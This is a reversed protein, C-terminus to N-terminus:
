DILTISRIDYKNGLGPTIPGEYLQNAVLEGTITQQSPNSYDLKTIVIAAFGLLELPEKGTFKNVDKTVPVYLITGNKEYDDLIKEVTDNKDTTRANIINAGTNSALSKGDSGYGIWLPNPYGDRLYDATKSPKESWDFYIWGWNGPMEKELHFEVFNYQAGEGAKVLNDFLTWQMHIPILGGMENVVGIIATADAPIIATADAPVDPDLLGFIKAFSYEVEKVTEVKITYDNLAEATAGCDYNNVAFNEAFAEVDEESNPSAYMFEQAGALAAADAANVMQRKTQYLSGGDIALAAMGMLVVVSLAVLILVGGKENRLFLNLRNDFPKVVKEEM